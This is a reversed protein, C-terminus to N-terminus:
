NSIGPTRRLYTDDTLQELMFDAIDARSIKLSLGREDAPFGRRFGRTLPGDTFASPRVITWDLDSARVYGEQRVHDAFAERLLMGFMLYKWVFNLNGRSDGVGLTTQVIVRKVGTRHMAELVARTGEARIVGKRGAGLSVLVADQGAVAREVSNTDLVDGKVIHLREHRQELGAADRTFATVEHGEEIAQAVVLRGVTSTAGFVAIKM